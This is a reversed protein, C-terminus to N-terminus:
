KVLIQIAQLYDMHNKVKLMDSKLLNIQLHHFMNVKKRLEQKTFNVDDIYEKIVEHLTQYAKVYSVTENPNTGRTAKSNVDIRNNTIKASSLVYQYKGDKNLVAHGKNDRLWHRFYVASVDSPVNTTVNNIDGNEDSYVTKIPKM